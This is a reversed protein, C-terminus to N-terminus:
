KECLQMFREYVAALGDVPKLLDPFAPGTAHDPHLNRINRLRSVIIYLDSANIGVSNYVVKELTLGQCKAITLAFALAFPPGIRIAREKTQRSLPTDVNGFQLHMKFKYVTGDIAINAFSDQKKCIVTPGEWSDLIGVPADSM